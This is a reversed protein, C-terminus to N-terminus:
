TVEGAEGGLMDERWGRKLKRERRERTPTEHMFNWADKTEQRDIMGSALVGEGPRWRM